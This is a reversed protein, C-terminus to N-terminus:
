LINTKRVRIGSLATGELSLPNCIKPSLQSDESGPHGSLWQTHVLGLGQCAPKEARQVRLTRRVQRRWSPRDPRRSPAGAQHCALIHQPRRPHPSVRRAGVQGRGATSLMDRTGQPAPASREMQLPHHPPSPPEGSEAEQVFKWGM